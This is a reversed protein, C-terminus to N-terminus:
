LSIIVATSRTLRRSKELMFPLGYGAHYLAIRLDPFRDAANELQEVQQAPTYSADPTITEFSLVVSLKLKVCTQLILVRLQLSSKLLKQDTLQVPCKSPVMETGQSWNKGEGHDMSCM